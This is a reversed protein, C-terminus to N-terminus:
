GMLGKILGIIFAIFFISGTIFSLAIAFKLPNSLDNFRIM